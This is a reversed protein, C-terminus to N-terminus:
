VVRQHLSNAFYELNDKAETKLEMQKLMSIASNFYLNIKNETLQRIGLRDFVGKIGDIKKDPTYNSTNNIYNFLTQFDEKGSMQIANILLFTKKNATIDNGISKGFKKIDGYTDLLDDQLQFAIGIDKGFAYLQDATKSDAGGYLAGMKLVAAVFVATKLTIMNIYEEASVDSRNEFDMDYQQGECIQLAMKSFISFIEDKKASKIKNLYEYAKILMADGSLIATNRNWKMHITEKNRRMSSEDMIDDHMLTFNHFVEMAIAPEVAEDINDSFFSYSMLFLAPRFRKGGMSLMYDVPEYLGNPEKPWSIENIKRIIIESAEKISLM